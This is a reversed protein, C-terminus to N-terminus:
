TAITFDTCNDVFNFDVVLIAVLDHFWPVFLVGSVCLISSPSFASMSVIRFITFSSSSTTAWRVTIFSIM